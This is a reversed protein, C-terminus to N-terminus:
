KQEPKKHLKSINTRRFKEEAVYLKAIKEVPLVNKFSDMTSNDLEDMRVKAQIHKKLLLELEKDSKGAETAEKLEKFSKMIEGRAQDLEKHVKNYVPWFVQAEEPTINLEVTLFAIKESMIREKWNEDFKEPTQAYANGAIMLAAAILTNLITKMTHKNKLNSQNM